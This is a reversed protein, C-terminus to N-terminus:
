RGMLERVARMDALDNLYKGSFGDTDTMMEPAMVDNLVNRNLWRSAARLAKELQAIREDVAGALYVNEDAAQNGPPTDPHLYIWNVEYKQM